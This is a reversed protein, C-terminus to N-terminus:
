GEEFECYYTGSFTYAASGTLLIENKETWEFFYRSDKSAVIIDRDALGSLVAGAAGLACSASHDANKRDLPSDISIEDRNILTVFVPHVPPLNSKKKKLETTIEKRKGRYQGGDLFVAGVRQLHLNIMPITRQPLSVVSSYDNDPHPIIDEGELNKAVGLNIRFNQSDVAEITREIGGATVILDRNVMLGGDFGYRGLCFLADGMLHTEEGDPRFFRLSLNRQDDSFLYLVGNAGVGSKRLCIDRSLLPLAELPPLPQTRGDVLILDNKGTCLKYFDFNV